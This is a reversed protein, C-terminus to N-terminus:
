QNYGEGDIYKSLQEITYEHQSIIAKVVDGISILGVLQGADVVPLHRIHEDTMLQMCEEIVTDPSVTFVEKTMLSIVQRNLYLAEESAIQRVIDRESLIGAIQEGDMILLAGVGKEALIQIASFVTTEPAISWVQDGKVSLLDRVTTFM